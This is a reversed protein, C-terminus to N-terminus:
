RQSIYQLFLNAADRESPLYHAEDIILLKPRVYIQMRQRLQGRLRVNSLSAILSVATTFLLSYGSFVAEGGLAVAPHTTGVESPGLLSHNDGSSIFRCSAPNEVRTQDISPPSTLPQWAESCPFSPWLWTCPSGEQNKRAVEAERLYRFDGGHRLTLPDIGFRPFRDIISQQCCGM